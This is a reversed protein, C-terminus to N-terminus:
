EKYNKKLKWLNRKYAKRKESKDLESMTQGPRQSNYLPKLTDFYYQEKLPANEPAVAELLQQESIKHKTTM